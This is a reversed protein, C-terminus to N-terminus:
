KKKTLAKRKMKEASSKAAALLVPTDVRVKYNPSSFVFDVAGDTNLLVAAPVPLLHHTEGSSEELNIGYGLYKKYTEADVKFALGLAKAALAKSDSVLTYDINHEKVSKKLNQPLDPSVAIIQYGLKELDPEITKLEGLHTNCYPCWSGRYFILLTPQRSVAANLDFKKGEIDILELEPLPQAVKIPCVDNPDTPVDGALVFSSSLSLVFLVYYLSLKM